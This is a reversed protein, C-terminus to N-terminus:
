VNAEMQGGGPKLQPNANGVPLQKLDPFQIIITEFM